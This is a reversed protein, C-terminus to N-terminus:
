ILEEEWVIRRPNDSDSSALTEVSEEYAAYNVRCLKVVHLRDAFDDLAKAYEDRAHERSDCPLYTMRNEPLLEELCYYRVEYRM